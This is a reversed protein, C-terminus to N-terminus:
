KKVGFVDLRGNIEDLQHEILNFNRDREYHYDERSLFTRRDDASQVAAQELRAISSDMPSKTMTIFGGIVALCFTAAAILTKWDTTGSLNVKDNLTAFAKGISEFGDKVDKALQANNREIVEIRFRIEGHDNMNPETM